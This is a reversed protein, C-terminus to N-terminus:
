KAFPRVRWTFHGELRFHLQVLFGVLFGVRSFKRQLDVPGFGAPMGSPKFGKRGVALLPKPQKQGAGAPRRDVRGCSAQGAGVELAPLAGKQLGKELAGHFLVAVAFLWAKPNHSGPKGWQACFELRDGAKGMGGGEGIQGRSQRRDEGRCFFEGFFLM